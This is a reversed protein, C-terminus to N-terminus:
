IATQNSVSISLTSNVARLDEIIKLIDAGEPILVILTLDTHLKEFDYEINFRTVGVKASDLLEKYPTITHIIQNLRINLTRLETGINARHEIKDLWVLIIMIFLTSIVAIVYMGVGVAMGIAAVMWIGAATTLGRVSGKMQIIAGAGLFGIGTVVQAAIRGPDGNKLGLYEQPVYISLIMALTSGMAILSFTRVGAPQGRQKREYGVVCGLLLSLLLKYVSSITNVEISNVAIYTEDWFDLLSM